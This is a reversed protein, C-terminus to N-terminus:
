GGGGGRRGGRGGRGGGSPGQGPLNVAAGEKLRDGGETIIDQGATVGSNIVTQEGLSPGVKVTQMHATKDAQMVWVFDGSPGHRISSAPVIVQHTLTNVLLSINVFQQPFLVGSDNAFRAKAKVTGTTADIQNDLTLLRGQALTQGGPKDLASVPLVAGSRLRAAITPLQDESVTFTVDIPDLQTIVVLGNTAGSTIYNGVDIQRLGVRGSIPAVIRCYGLNLRANNVNAVDSQITAEDQKVTAAQTDVDQRAVSDQSLLIQDRKLLLQADALGAQDRALQAQAQELAVQYPREDVVALLQGAKVMQGETFNISTLNGAIRATVTTTALPTVTGLATLQIPMDGTVAKVVGVTTQTRFRAGPGGSKGACQRLVVGVIVALVIVGIIGLVTRRRSHPRAIGPRSGATGPPFLSSDAPSAGVPPETM